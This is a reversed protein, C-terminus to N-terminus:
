FGKGLQGVAQYVPLMMAALVWLIMGGAVLLLGNQLQSWRRPWTIALQRELLTLGQQLCHDLRGTQEGMLVLDQLLPPLLRSGMLAISLSQGDALQQELRKAQEVLSRNSLAARALELGRL